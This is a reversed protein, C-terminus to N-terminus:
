PIESYKKRSNRNAERRKPLTTLVINSGVILDNEKVPHLIGQALQVQEM